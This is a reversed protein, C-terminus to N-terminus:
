KKLLPMFACALLPRSVTGHVLWSRFVNALCDYFVDPANKLADSTYSGSVDAKGKKMLGAALKVAGGTIKLVETISEQCCNEKVRAKIQVMDASSEASNYLTEYVEKFKHCVEQEGNAGDVNEPLDPTSKGGRVKKLEKFLDGGGWMAAEFLKQGKIRDAAKRVKRLAHHFKNRTRKMIEFMQGTNPRGASLWVSHWFQSAERLPAVEEKWGPVCHSDPKNTGQHGGVMPINAHSSEIVAGMLDLIYDDRSESHSTVECKIDQCEMCRPVPLQEIKLKLAECYNKQQMETAKYWAPRLPRFNSSKKMVPLDGLNIKVMIPSHRSLNDGLHIPGCDTVLPLLRQNVIFHDLTSVSKDDTHIHTFDVQHHEWLSVLGVRDLFRRVTLAFGSQRSMDWNLDGSIMIDDFQNTDMIRVIESLVKLLETDNFIVTRPDTPFYANIWLLRNKEFNLVQAQIRKNSSIVRDKRVAVTANSLQALGAKPRGRDQGEERYGPIVYSNYNPFQDKFFKDITKSKRFHEQISVYTANTTECLSKLWDCKHINLGTPNYSLFTALVPQSSAM